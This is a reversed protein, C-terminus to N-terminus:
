SYSKVLEDLYAAAEASGEEPAWHAFDKDAKPDYPGPKVEFLVTDPELALFSHWIGGDIDVGLPFSGAKMQLVRESSGQDDFTLYLLTGSLVVLSEARDLAHRHPRIYSGPQLFNLMRQLTDVGQKHLPQIIRKRPSKRSARRGESLLDETIATVGSEPAPLAFPFDSPDTM